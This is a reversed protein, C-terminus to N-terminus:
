KNKKNLRRKELKSLLAIDITTGTYRKWVYEALLMFSVLYYIIIYKWYINGMFIRKEVSNNIEDMRDNFFAVSKETEIISDHLLMYESPTIVSLKSLFQDYSLFSAPNEITVRKDYTLMSTAKREETTIKFEEFIIKMNQTFIDRISIDPCSHKAINNVIKMVQDVKWDMSGLEAELLDNIIDFEMRFKKRFDADLTSVKLSGIFKQTNKYIKSDSNLYDSDFSSYVDRVDFLSMNPHIILCNGVNTSMECSLSPVTINYNVGDVRKVIVKEVINCSSPTDSPVSFFHATNNMFMEMITYLDRKSSMQVNFNLLMQKWQESGKFSLMQELYEYEPLNLMRLRRVRKSLQEFGDLIAQAKDAGTYQSLGETGCFVGMNMHISHQTINNVLRLINENLDDFFYKAYNEIESPEINPDLYNLIEPAHERIQKASKYYMGRRSNQVHSSLDSDFMDSLPKTNKGLLCDFSDQVVQQLQSGVHPNTSKGLFNKHNQVFQQIQNIREMRQTDLTVFLESAEYAKVFAGINAEFSEECSVAKRLLQELNEIETVNNTPVGGGANYSLVELTITAFSFFPNVLVMVIIANVITVSVPKMNIANYIQKGMQYIIWISLAMFLIYAASNAISRYNNADQIRFKVQCAYTSYSRRLQSYADQTNGNVHAKGIVYSSKLARTLMMLDSKRFSSMDVDSEACLDGRDQESM